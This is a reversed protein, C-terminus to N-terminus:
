SSMGQERPMGKLMMLIQIFNSIDTLIRMRFDLSAFATQEGGVLWLQAAFSALEKSKTVSKGVEALQSHAYYTSFREFDQGEIRSCVGEVNSPIYVHSAQKEPCFSPPIM